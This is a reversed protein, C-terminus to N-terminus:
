RRLRHAQRWKAVAVVYAVFATLIVLALLLNTEDRGEGTAAKYM